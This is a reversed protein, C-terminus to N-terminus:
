NANNQVTVKQQKSQRLRLLLVLTVLLILLCICSCLCLLVPLLMNNYGSVKVLPYVAPSSIPTNPYFRIQSKTTVSTQTSTTTTVATTRPPPVTTRVKSTTTTTSPWPQYPVPATTVGYAKTLFITLGSATVAMLVVLLVSRNM